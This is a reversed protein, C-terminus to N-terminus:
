GRYGRYCGASDGSNKFEAVVREAKEAKSAKCMQINSRQNPKPTLKPLKCPATILSVAVSEEQASRNHGMKFQKPLSSYTYERRRFDGFACPDYSLTLAADGFEDLLTSFAAFKGPYTM